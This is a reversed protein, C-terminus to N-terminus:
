ILSFLRKAVLETGQYIMVKYTGAKTKAVTKWEWSVVGNKDSTKDVLNKSKSQTNNYLVKISYKTYANGKIIIKSYSGAKIKDKFYVVEVKDGSKGTNLELNLNTYSSSNVINDNRNKCGTFLLALVFILICIRKM